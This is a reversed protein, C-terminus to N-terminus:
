RKVSSARMTSFGVVGNTKLLRHWERLAAAVPMYLLGAACVIADFTQAGYQPLCCADAELLEVNRLGSESVAVSAARLMGPSVDVGCVRGEIGVERAAAIAAFGTGTGADLVRGGARLQCLTVLREACRRHWDNRAYRSARVDFSAAIERIEM